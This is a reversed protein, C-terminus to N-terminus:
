NRGVGEPRDNFVTDGNDDRGTTITYPRASTVQMNLGARIGYVIPTNVMIFLRHRIDQASPGWDLDPNISDSPLSTASDAYNRVSQLQYRVNSFLRLRDARATLSVTLRDSATRGSSQIESINGATEDPRVGDVPANVNVSRLTNTGRTWMYDTRLQAWSTLQRELGISAQQILPQTLSSSRIISAPLRTGGGEAAPFGPDEVVLDVMHEGDVMITQEYLGSDYWDYFIGYGGRVTTTRSAT